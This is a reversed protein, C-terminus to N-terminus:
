RCLYVIAINRFSVSTNYVVRCQVLNFHHTKSRMCCNCICCLSITYLQRCYCHINYLTSCITRRTHLIGISYPIIVRMSALAGFAKSIDMIHIGICLKFGFTYMKLQSYFHRHEMHWFIIFLHESMALVNSFQLNGFRLIYKQNM